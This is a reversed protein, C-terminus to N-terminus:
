GLWIRTERRAEGPHSSGERVTTAGKVMGRVGALERKEGLEEIRVGAVRTTNGQDAETVRTLDETEIRKNTVKIDEAALHGLDRRGTITDGVVVVVAMVMVIVRLHRNIGQSLSSATGAIVIM